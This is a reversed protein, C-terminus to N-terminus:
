QGMKNVITDLMEDIVSVMRAAANYAHQYQILNTMEEDLSVGSVSQRRQDATTQLTESNAKMRNAAEANVGMQGIMSQLFGKLTTTVTETTGGNQVTFTMAQNALVDALALATENDGDGNSVGGTGGAAAINNVSDKIAQDLDIAAAAGKVDTLPAFFDNGTPVTGDSATLGFGTEHVANFANVLNYAMQDLANLMNPYDISYSEVLGQLAGGVSFPDIATGNVTLSPPDGSFDVNFTSATLNQGDVLTITQVAGSSDTATMTITYKGVASAPALGGSPVTTVNVNVYQSLEDVLQDRADYLDNAAYGNPEIEAIQKNIQNIQDLLANIKNVDVGIETKINDRNQNLSASLYHFTDVVAQGRQRVVSRAGSNEPNDALDQLSQWFQDLVKSLGQDTPENMVDEMKSLADSKASWYGVKTTEGRYQLDIFADRIRSVSSAEVGTGIQGPIRPQNFGIAPYPLTTQFDVRQRSYGPTNANAVNHGTTQIAAQQTFLARRVTELTAFTSLM